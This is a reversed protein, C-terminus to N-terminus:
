TIRHLSCLWLTAIVSGSYSHHLSMGSSKPRAYSAVSGPSAQPFIASVHPALQATSNSVSAIRSSISQGLVHGPQGSPRCIGASSPRAVFSNSGPGTNNKKSFNYGYLNATNVNKNNTGMASNGSNRRNGGSSSPRTGIDSM